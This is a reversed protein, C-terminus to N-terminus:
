ESKVLNNKFYTDLMWEVINGKIQYKEAVEKADDLLGEDLWFWELNGSAVKAGLENLIGHIEKEVKLADERDVCGEWSLLGANASQLERMRRQPNNTVGIKYHDSAIDYILYLYM